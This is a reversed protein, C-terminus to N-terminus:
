NLILAVIYFTVNYLLGFVYTESIITTNLFENADSTFKIFVNVGFNIVATYLMGQILGLMIGLFSDASNVVPIKRIVKAIYSVVSVIIMVVAFTIGFLVLKVTKMMVPRIIENEIIKIISEKERTILTLMRETEMNNEELYREAEKIIEEPVIGDFASTLSECYEKFLNNLGESIKDNDLLDRYLESNDKFASLQEDTLDVGNEEFIQNIKDSSLYEEELSAAKSELVSIVTPKVLNDYVYESAVNSVFVAAMVALVYGVLTILMRVAGKRSGAVACGIILAIILLDLIYKM